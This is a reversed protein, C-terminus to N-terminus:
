NIDSRFDESANTEFCPKSDFVLIGMIHLFIIFFFYARYEKWFEKNKEFPSPLTLRYAFCNRRVFVTFLHFLNDARSFGSMDTIASKTKLLPRLYLKNLFCSKSKLGLSCKLTYLLVCCRTEDMIVNSTLTLILWTVCVTWRLVGATKLVAKLFSM